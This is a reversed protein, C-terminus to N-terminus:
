DKHHPKICYSAFSTFKKNERGSYGDVRLCGPFLMGAIIYTYYRTYKIESSKGKLDFETLNCKMTIRNQENEVLDCSGKAYIRNDDLPTRFAASVPSLFTLVGTKSLPELPRNFM